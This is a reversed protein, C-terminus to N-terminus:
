YKIAGNKVFADVYCQWQEASYYTSCGIGVIRAPNATNPQYSSFTCTMKPDGLSVCATAIEAFQASKIIQKDWAAITWYEPPGLERFSIDENADGAAISLDPPNDCALLACSFLLSSIKQM